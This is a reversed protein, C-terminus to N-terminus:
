PTKPSSWGQCGIQFLLSCGQLMLSRQRIQPAGIIAFATPASQKKQEKRFANDIRPWKTRRVESALSLLFLLM